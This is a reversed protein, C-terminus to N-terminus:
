FYTFKDDNLKKAELSSLELTTIKVFFFLGAQNIFSAIM